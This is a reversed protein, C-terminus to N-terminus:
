ESNPSCELFQALDDLFKQREAPHEHLHTLNYVSTLKGEDIWEQAERAVREVLITALFSLKPQIRNTKEAATLIRQLATKATKWHEDSGAPDAGGKIEGAWTMDISLTQIHLDPGIKYDKEEKPDHWTLQRDLLLINGNLLEIERFKVRSRELRDLQHILDMNPTVSLTNVLAEDELKEGEGISEIEDKLNFRITKLCGLSHLHILLYRVVQSNAWRGVENRSIGGLADGMNTLVIELHRLPSVGSLRILESTIRNFYVALETAKTAPLTAGRIEYPAVNLGIANMTKASLMAMNRYYLVLRPQLILDQPDCFFRPYPIPPNAADLQTLAAPDIGLEQSREAIDEKDYVLANVIELLGEINMQAIIQILLAGRHVAGREVARKIEEPASAFSPLPQVKPPQRKIQKKSTSM